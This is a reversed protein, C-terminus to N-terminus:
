PSKFSLVESTRVGKGIRPPEDILRLDPREARDLFDQRMALLAGSNAAERVTPGPFDPEGGLCWALLARRFFVASCNLLTLNADSDCVSFCSIDFPYNTRDLPCPREVALM